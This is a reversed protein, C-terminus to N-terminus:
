RTVIPHPCVGVAALDIVPKEFPLVSRLPQLVNLDDAGVVAQAFGFDSM